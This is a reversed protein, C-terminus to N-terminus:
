YSKRQPLHAPYSVAENEYQNVNLIAEDQEAM